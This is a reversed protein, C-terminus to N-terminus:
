NARTVDVRRNASSSASLGGLPSDDAMGRATFQDRPLGKQVMYDVVAQARRRSLEQNLARSGVSDSHGTVIYRYKALAPSNLADYLRDAQAQSAGDLAASGRAFSIGLTTRGPTRPAALRAKGGVRAAPRSVAMAAPRVRPAVSPQSAAPGTAPRVGLSWGRTAPDAADAAEADGAFDACNGQLECAIDDTSKEELVADQALAAVPLLLGLAGGLAGITWMRTM